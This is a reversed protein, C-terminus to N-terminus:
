GRSREYEAVKLSVRCIALELTEAGASFQAHNYDDRALFAVVEVVWWEQGDSWMKVNYYLSQLWTVVIRGASPAITYNPVGRVHGDIHYYPPAGVAVMLDEMTNAPKAGMAEAVLVDTEPGAVLEDISAM